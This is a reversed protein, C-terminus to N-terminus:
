NPLDTGLSQRICHVSWCISSSEKTGKNEMKLEQTDWVGRERGSCVKMKEPKVNEQVTAQEIGYHSEDTNRVFV